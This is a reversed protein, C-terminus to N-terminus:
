KAPMESKTIFFHLGIVTGYIFYSPIAFYAVEFHPEGWANLLSYIEFFIVGLFFAAQSRQSLYSRWYGFVCIWLVSAHLCLMVTLGVIGSRTLTTVYSNHPERVIMTEGGTGTTTHDTLVQGFGIGSIQTSIDRSWLKLSYERWRHRQSVGNAAGSFESRSDSTQGTLTMVHEFIGSASLRGVRGKIQLGSMEITLLITVGVLLGLVILTAQKTQGGIVLFILLSVAVFLYAIRSQFMFFVLLGAVFIAIGLATSWFKAPESSQWRWLMWGIMAMISVAPFSTFHGFISVNQQVSSVQPSIAQINGSIPYLMGYVALLCGLILLVSHIWIKGRQGEELCIIAIVFGPIIFLIEVTPMADRAAGVGDHILGIPLHLALNFFVWLVLVLLPWPLKLRDKALWIRHACACLAFFLVCESIPLPIGGIFFIINSFGYSFVLQGMVVLFSAKIWMPAGPAVRRVLWALLALGVLAILLLLALFPQVGAIVGFLVATLLGVILMLTYGQVSPIKEWATGLFIDVGQPWV